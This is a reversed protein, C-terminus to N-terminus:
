WIPPAVIVVPPPPPYHRRYPEYYGRYYRYHPPPPPPPPYYDRRHYGHRGRDHRYGDYDQAYAGCSFVTAQLLSIMFTMVMIVLFAKLKAM